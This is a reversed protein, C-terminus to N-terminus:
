LHFDGRLEKCKMVCLGYDQMQNDIHKFWEGNIIDTLSKNHINHDQPKLHPATKWLTELERPNGMWCCPTVYGKASIYINGYTPHFNDMNSNCKAACRVTNLVPTQKKFENITLGDIKNSKQEYWEPINVEQKIVSEPKKEEPESDIQMVEARGSQVITFNVFGENDALKKAEELQHKNHNFVIFQWHAHGGAKIYARWNRQVTEWRVNRRYIHNTDELGDLGFVTFVQKTASSLKGLETWFNEDRLGGNTSIGVRGMPNKILHKIFYETIDLMEPNTVPEDVNGCYHVFELNDWQYKGFMEEIQKKTYWTNNLDPTVRNGTKWEVYQEYRDCQPCAANCYNSLEIQIRGIQNPEFWKNM